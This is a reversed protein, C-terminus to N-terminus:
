NTKKVKAIRKAPAKKPEAAKKPGAAKKQEAPAAKKIPEEVSEESQKKNIPGGNLRRRVIKEAEIWNELDRGPIWGSKEYLEHATKAIEEHLNM